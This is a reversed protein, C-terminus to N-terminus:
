FTTFNYTIVIRKEHKTPASSSHYHAGDFQHWTNIHPPLKEKITYQESEKTENYVVTDGDTDNLYYLGTTHPITDDKHPAHIVESPVRTILGMRIRLLDKLSKQQQDLATTLIPMVCDFLDSIPGRDKKFILHSFSSHFPLLNDNYNATTEAYYWNIAPSDLKSSLWGYHNPGLLNEIRMIIYKVARHLNEIDKSM